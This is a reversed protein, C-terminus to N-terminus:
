VADANIAAPWKRSRVIDKIRANSTYNEAARRALVKVRQDVAEQRYEMYHKAIGFNNQHAVHGVTWICPQRAEGTFWRDEIDVPEISQTSFPVPQALSEQM